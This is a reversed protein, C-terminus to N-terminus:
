RTVVHRPLWPTPTAPSSATKLWGKRCLTAFHHRVAEHQIDLQRAVYRAPCAEGVADVYRTVMVFIAVQRATLALQGSPAGAHAAM